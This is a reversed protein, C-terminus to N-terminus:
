YNLNNVAIMLDYQANNINRNLIYNSLIQNLILRLGDPAACGYAMSPYYIFYNLDYNNIPDNLYPDKFDCDDLDLRTSLTGKIQNLEFQCNQDSIVKLWAKSKEKHLLNKPISFSDCILMFSNPAGVVIWDFNQRPIAGLSKFYNVAWDGMITYAAKGEYVMEVAQQWNINQYDYNMYSTVKKFLQLTYKITPNDLAIDGDCFNQYSYIGLTDILINEYLHLLSKNDVNGLALPLINNKQIIDMSSILTEFDHPKDINLKELIHKNYFIINGRNMTVPLAYVEGEYSSMKLLMPNYKNFLDWEKLLSTLPELANNKVYKNILEPGSHVQLVDPPNGKFIRELLLNNMKEEPRCSINAHVINIGPFKSKFDEFLKNRAIGDYGGKWYSHVEFENKPAFLLPKALIPFTFTFIIFFVLFLSLIKKLSVM